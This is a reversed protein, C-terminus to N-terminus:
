LTDVSAAVYDEDIDEALRKYTPADDVNVLCLCTGLAQCDAAEPPVSISGNYYM